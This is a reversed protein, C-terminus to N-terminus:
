HAYSKIAKRQQCGQGANPMVSEFKRARERQEGGGVLELQHRGAREWAGYDLVNAEVAGVIETGNVSFGARNSAATPPGKTQRKIQSFSRQIKKVARVIFHRKPALPAAHQRNVIKGDQEM